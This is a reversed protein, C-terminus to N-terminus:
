VKKVVLDPNGFNRNQWVLMKLFENNGKESEVKWIQRKRIYFSDCLHNHALVSITDILDSFFISQTLFCKLLLMIACSTM